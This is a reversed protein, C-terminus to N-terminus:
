VALVLTQHLYIHLELESELNNHHSHFLNRGVLYAATIRPLNVINLSFPKNNKRERM